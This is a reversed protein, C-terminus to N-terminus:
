VASVLVLAWPVQSGVQTDGRHKNLLNKSCVHEGRSPAPRSGSLPATVGVRQDTITSVIWAFLTIIYSRSDRTPLPALVGGPLGVCVCTSGGAHRPLGRDPM